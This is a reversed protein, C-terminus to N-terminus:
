SYSLTSLRAWVSSDSSSPRRSGARLSRCLSFSFLRLSGVKSSGTAECLAAMVARLGEELEKFASESAGGSRLKKAAPSETMGTWCQAVAGGIRGEWRKIRLRGNMVVSALARGAERMLRVTEVSWTGEGGATATTALLDALHPVLIQLYRITGTGLADLLPPLARCSVAEVEVNGGKFEWAKIVSSSLLTCLAAFRATDDVEAPRSPNYPPYQLDLLELAVPHARELVKPTLPDSLASFCLDLSQRAACVNLM